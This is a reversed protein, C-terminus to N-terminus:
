LVRLSLTVVDCGGGGIAACLSKWQRVALEAGKDEGGRLDAAAEGAADAGETEVASGQVQSAGGGAM